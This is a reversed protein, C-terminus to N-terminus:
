GGKAGHGAQRYALRDDLSRGSMSVNHFDCGSDNVDGFDSGSLNARHVDVRQNEGEIRM